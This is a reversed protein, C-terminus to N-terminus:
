PGRATGGGPVGQHVHVLRTHAVTRNGGASEFRVCRLGNGLSGEPAADPITKDRLPHQTLRIRPTSPSTVQSRTWLRLETSRKLCSFPPSSTMWSRGAM